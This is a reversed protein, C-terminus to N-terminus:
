LTTTSATTTAPSSPAVNPASPAPTEPIAPAAGVGGAILLSPDLEARLIFTVIGSKDVAIDSFIARKIRKEAAFASSEAALANFSKAVGRMEISASRDESVALQLAQFRVNQLTLTELVDFFQSAAVHGDLLSETARFRNRLRIYDKVVEINVQAEASTLQQEKATRVNTLYAQYAFVLGAAVLAVGAVFYAIIAFVSTSARQRRTAVVPQKPVFSTPISPPLAV